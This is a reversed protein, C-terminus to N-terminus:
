SCGYAKTSAKSVEQGAVLENIANEVFNVDGPAAADSRNDIAGHYVLTQEPTIIYMEPTRKAGYKKGIKGTPDMLIPSTINWKEAHQKNHDHDASPHNAHGSNIRLWVIDQDAFQAELKTMTGTDNRYHKRVFPCDPSFWELVVTKGASTYDTLTHKNKDLDYLTFDPATDGISLPANSSETSNFAAMMAVPIILLASLAFLKLAKM